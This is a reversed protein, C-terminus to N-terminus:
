PLRGGRGAIFLRYWEERTLALEDAACANKLRELNQTGVIPQIRAPIRLLWATLVTEAAVGRERAIAQVVGAAENMKEKEPPIPRGSLFGRALPSWAQVLMDNLRAYELSGEGRGVAGGVNQNAVIGQDLVHTHAVSLQIQNVIIPRNAHKKLLEIQVPTHNSVGFHRVTGAKHLDDFARAVEEPEVLPDPRHLLFIDLHGCQLREISRQASQVIHEYSFDYRGPANPTPDGTSRIGCKSQIIMRERLGPEAKLVEGFLREKRGAGGYIDAHDFLNVGSALVADVWARAKEAPGALSMCGVGVRSVDLDTHAITMMHM